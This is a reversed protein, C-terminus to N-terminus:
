NLARKTAISSATIAFRKAIIPNELAVFRADLQFAALDFRDPCALRVDAIRERSDFVAFGKKIVGIDLWVFFGAVFDRGCLADAFQQQM